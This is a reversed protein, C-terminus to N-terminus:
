NKLCRVSLGYARSSTIMGTSTATIFMNKSETGSVTSTWYYGGWGTGDSRDGLRRGALVFKLPSAFAGADDQSSWSARERDMETETPLRFGQPCPNNVGGLGQWLNDNQPERWDLTGTYSVIFDAHGPIDYPSLDPITISYGNQHGDGLRGWQYKNGYASVDTASKAVQSAGLNRDKWCQGASLVEDPATCTTRKSSNLPIVVVKSTQAVTSGAFLMITGLIVISLTSKM